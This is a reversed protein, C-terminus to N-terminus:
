HRAACKNDCTARTPLEAAGNYALAQSKLDLLEVRTGAAEGSNTVYRASVHGSAVRAFVAGSSQLRGELSRSPLGRISGICELDRM